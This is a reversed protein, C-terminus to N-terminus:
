DYNYEESIEPCPKMWRGTREVIDLPSAGAQIARCQNGFYLWAAAGYNIAEVSYPSNYAFDEPLEPAHEIDYAVNAVLIEHKVYKGDDGKADDYPWEANCHYPADNWDDGWQRELEIETFFMRLGKTLSYGDEDDTDLQECRDVYCLQFGRATYDALEDATMKLFDRYTYM